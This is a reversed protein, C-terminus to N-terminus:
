LDLDRRKASRQSAAQENKKPKKHQEAKKKAKERVENRLKDTFERMQKVADKKPGKLETSM